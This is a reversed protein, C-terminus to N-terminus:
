NGDRSRWYNNDHTTPSPTAKDCRLQWSHLMGRYLHEWLLSEGKIDEIPAWETEIAAFAATSLLAVLVVTALRM